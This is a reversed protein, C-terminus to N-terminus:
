INQQLIHAIAQRKELAVAESMLIQQALASRDRAQALNPDSFAEVGTVEVAGPFREQMRETVSERVIEENNFQVELTLLGELKDRYTNLVLQILFNHSGSRISDTTARRDRELTTLKQAHEFLARSTKSSYEEAGSRVKIVYGERGYEVFVEAGPEEIMESELSGEGYFGLVFDQVNADSPDLYVQTTEENSALGIHQRGLRPLFYKLEAKAM